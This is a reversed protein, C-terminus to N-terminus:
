IQEDKVETALLIADIRKIIEDASFLRVGCYKELHDNTEFLETGAEALLSKLASVRVKLDLCERECDRHARNITLMPNAEAYASAELRDTKRRNNM